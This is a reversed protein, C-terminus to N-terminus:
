DEEHWTPRAPDSRDVPLAPRRDSADDWAWDVFADVRPVRRAGRRGVRGNRGIM